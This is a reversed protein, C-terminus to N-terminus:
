ACEKELNNFEGVQWNFYKCLGDSLDIFSIDPHFFPFMSFCGAADGFAKIIWLGSEEHKRVLQPYGIIYDDAEQRSKWSLENGITVIPDYGM